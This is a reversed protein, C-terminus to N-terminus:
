NYTVNFNINSDARGSVITDRVQVYSAKFKLVAKNGVIDALQQNINESLDIKEGAADNNFIQIQVGSASGAGSDILRLNGTANDIFGDKHFSVAAKKGNTCDAGSLNINFEKFDSATGVGSFVSPLVNGFRVTGTNVGSESADVQVKCAVAAITGEFKVNGSNIDAYSMAPTLAALLVGSAAVSAFSKLKM